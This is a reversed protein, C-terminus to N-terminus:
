MPSSQADLSPGVPSPGNGAIKEPVKATLSVGQGNDVSVYQKM